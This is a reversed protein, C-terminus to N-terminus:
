DKAQPVMVWLLSASFQILVIIRNNEQNPSPFDNNSNAASCYRARQYSNRM